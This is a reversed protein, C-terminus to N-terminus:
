PTEIGALLEELAPLAAEYNETPAVFRVQLVAEGEVLPRCEFYAVAFTGLEYVGGVADDVTAPAPYDESAVLPTDGQSAEVMGTLCAEPDGDYDEVGEVVALVIVSGMVHFEIGEDREEGTAVWTAPDWSVTYDWTPSVYTEGADSTRETEPAPDQDEGAGDRDADEDDDAEDREATDGVALAEALDDPLPLAEVCGGDDLCAAQANALAAVVEAPPTEPAIVDITAVTEGVRLAIGRYRASGDETKLTYAVSEEGATPAEEDIELDAFAPNDGIRDETDALWDAAADDDAFRLLEVLFWGDDETGDDGAAIQQWLRYGDTQDIDAAADERGNTDRRSEGYLPLAEGDRLLYHDASPVIAEGALRAVQSSLGAGDGDLTAEVRELLLGALAEADGLDPEEGAWDVITVGTHVNDLRLSLDLADYRDGSEEDEGQVRTAESEDGFAEVDDLDEASEDGSEDEVFDWAAAAGEADTFELVYSLVYRDSPGAPDDEDAPLYLYSTYARVFGAEDLVQRVEEEPLDRNQATSAAYDDPFVTEGYGLGYDDLGADDLDDPTLTMAALDLTTAADSADPQGSSATAEFAVAHLVQYGGVYIVGDAFAMGDAGDEPIAAQAITDGSAADLIVLGGPLEPSDRGLAVIALDGDLAFGTLNSGPLEDVVWRTEQRQLDFALLVVGDDRNEVLYLVGDSATFLTMEAADDGLPLSWLEEGTQADIAQLGGERERYGYLVGDHHLTVFRDTIWLEEGSTVDLAMRGEEALVYAIGEAYAFASTTDLRWRETGDSLDLAVLVVLPEGSPAESRALYALVVDEEAAVILSSSAFGDETEFAWREEGDAIERAILRGRKAEEDFEHTFVVGAGTVPASNQDNPAQWLEEGTATDVAYLTGDLSPVFVIGEAVTPDPQVTDGTEFTWLETFGENASEDDAQASAVATRGVIPAALAVLIVLAVFASVSRRGNMRILSQVNGEVTQRPERRPRRCM